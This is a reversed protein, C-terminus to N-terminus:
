RRRISVPQAPVRATQPTIIVTATLGDMLQGQRNEVEAWFRVRRSVPEVKVDIFAIRGYTQYGAAPSEDQGDELRVAVTAGPRVLNLHEVDVFGEVRVSQTNAMELIPEGDRVAEGPKKYVKTVIGELPTVIQYTKLLEGTEDRKLQALAFSHEAQELQLLLKEASLRLRRVEAEPVAGRVERNAELAKSYELQALESAKRAYRVEIDNGAQKQAVAFEARAVQDRLQAVQQGQQYPEGERAISALVGSREAALAATQAYVIRCHPIELRRQAAAGRSSEAPTQGALTAHLGLGLAALVAAMLGYRRLASDLSSWNGLRM